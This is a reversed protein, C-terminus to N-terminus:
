TASQFPIRMPPLPPAPQQDRPIGPDRSQFRHLASQVQRRRCPNQLKETESFAVATFEGSKGNLGPDAQNSGSSWRWLGPVEALVRVRFVDDGDWFGYCRKEFDPGELDVWVEVQTYPNEYHNESHLTIEVKEWAHITEALGTGYTGLLLAVVAYLVLSFKCAEYIMDAKKNDNDM